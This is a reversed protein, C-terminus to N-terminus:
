AGRTGVNKGDSLCEGFPYSQMEFDSFPLVDTQVLKRGIRIAKSVAAGKPLESREVKTSVLVTLCREGTPQGGKIKVGYAHARVNPKRKLARELQEKANLIDAIRLKSTKM